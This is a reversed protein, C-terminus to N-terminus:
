AVASVETSTRQRLGALRAASSRNRELEAPTLAYTEKALRLAKGLDKRCRKWFRIAPLREVDGSRMIQAFASEEEPTWGKGTEPNLYM